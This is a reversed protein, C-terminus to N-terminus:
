KVMVLVLIYLLIILVSCLPLASHNTIRPYIGTHLYIWESTLTRKFACFQM